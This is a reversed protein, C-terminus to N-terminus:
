GMGLIRMEIVVTHANDAPDFKQFLIQNGPYEWSGNKRKYRPPPFREAREPDVCTYADAYAKRRVPQKCWRELAAEVAKIM